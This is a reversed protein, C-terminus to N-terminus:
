PSCLELLEGGSAISSIRGPKEGANASMLFRIRDCGNVDFGWEGSAPEFEVEFRVGAMNLQGLEAMINKELVGAAARRKESM